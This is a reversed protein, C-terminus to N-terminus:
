PAYATSWWTTGDCQFTISAGTTGKAALTTEGSGITGSLTITGTTTHRLVIIRNTMGTVAPLTITGTTGTYIVTYDALGVSYSGSQTTLSMFVAGKINVASDFEANGGNVRFKNTSDNVGGVFLSGNLQSIAQGAGYIAYSNAAKGFSSYYGYEIAGSALGVGAASFATYGHANPLSAGIAQFGTIQGMYGSGTVTHQFGVYSAISDAGAAVVNTQIGIMNTTDHAAQGMRLYLGIPATTGGAVTQSFYIHAFGAPTATSNSLFLSDGMISKTTLDGLITGTGSAYLSGITSDSGTVKLGGAAVTLASDLWTQHQVRLGYTSDPADAGIGVNGLFQSNASGIGNFSLNNAGKGVNAQFGTYASGPFLTAGLAQFAIFGHLNPINGGQSQFATVQGMYGSSTSAYRYGVISVISDAGSVVFNTNYGIMNITDHANNIMTLLSGVPNNTGGATNQKYYVENLATPPNNFSCGNCVSDIKTTDSFIKGGFQYWGPFIGTLKYLHLSDSNIHAIEGPQIIQYSSTNALNGVTDPFTNANWVNFDRHIPSTYWISGPTTITGRLKIFKWDILDHDNNAITTRSGNNVTISDYANYVFNGNLGNIPNSVYNSFAGNEAGTYM